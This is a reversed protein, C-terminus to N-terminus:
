TSERLDAAAAALPTIRRRQACEGCWAFECVTEDGPIAAEHGCELSVTFTM